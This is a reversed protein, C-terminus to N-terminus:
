GDVIMTKIPQDFKITTIVEYPAVPQTLTKVDKVGTGRQPKNLVIEIDVESTKQVVRKVMFGNAASPSSALHVAIVQQRKWDIQSHKGTDHIKALYAKWKDASNIVIAGGDTYADGSGLEIISFAIEDPGAQGTVPISRPNPVQSMASSAALVFLSFIAAKMSKYADFGPSM